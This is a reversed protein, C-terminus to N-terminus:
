AAKSRYSGGRYFSHQFVIVGRTLGVKDETDLTLLEFILRYIAFARMIITVIVAEPTAVSFPLPSERTRINLRICVTVQLWDLNGFLYKSQLQKRAQKSRCSEPNPNLCRGFFHFIPSMLLPTVLV